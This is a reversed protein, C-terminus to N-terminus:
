CTSLLIRMDIEKGVYKGVRVSTIPHISNIYMVECNLLPAAAYWYRSLRSCVLFHPFRLLCLNGGVRSEEMNKPVNAM